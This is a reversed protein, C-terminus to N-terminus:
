RRPLSPLLRGAMLGIAVGLDVPGRLSFTAATPARTLHFGIPGLHPALRDMPPFDHWDIGLSGSKAGDSQAQLWPVAVDYAMGVLFKTDVWGLVVREDQASHLSAGAAWEPLSALRPNPTARALILNKMAQPWLTLVLRGELIAMAVLNDKPDEGWLSFPSPVDARLLFIKHGRFDITRVCSPKGDSAAHTLVSKEVLAADGCPMWMGVDPLPGQPRPLAFLGLERDQPEAGGSISLLLNLADAGFVAKIAAAGPTRQWLEARAVAVLLSGAPLFDADPALTTPPSSEKEPPAEERWQALGLDVLNPGDLSFGLSITAPWGFRAPLNLGLAKLKAVVDQDRALKEAEVHVFGWTRDNVIRSRAAVFEPQTGLGDTRAPDKSRRVAGELVSRETALLLHKEHVIWFLAPRGPEASVFRKGKIGEVQIEQFEHRFKEGLAEEVNAVLTSAADSGSGVKWTVLLLPIQMSPLGPPALERYGQFSITTPALLIPRLEDLPLGVVSALLNALNTRLEALLNTSGTLVRKVEPDRLLRAISLEAGHKLFPALSFEAHVVTGRPLWDAVIPERKAVGLEPAQAPLRSLAVCVALVCLVRFPIPAFPRRSM